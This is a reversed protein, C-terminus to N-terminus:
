APQPQPRNASFRSKALHVLTATLGVVITIGTVIGAALLPTLLPTGTKTTAMAKAEEVRTREIEATLAAEREAEVRAREVRAKRIVEREAEAAKAEEVRAADKVARAKEVKTVANVLLKILEQIGDGTKASTLRIEMHHEAAKDRIRVALNDDVSKIDIKTVVLYLTVASSCHNIAFKVWMDINEIINSNTSDVFIVAIDASMCYSRVISRYFGKGGTDWFCIRNNNCEIYEFDVGITSSIDNNFERLRLREFVSTKGAGSDGLFITKAMNYASVNILNSFVFSFACILAMFKKFNM